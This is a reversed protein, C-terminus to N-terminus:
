KIKYIKFLSFLFRDTHKKKKICMLNPININRSVYKKENIKGISLLLNKELNLSNNPEPIIYRIIFQIIAEEIETKKRRGSIRIEHM